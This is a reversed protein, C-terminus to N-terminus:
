DLGARIRSLSQPTVDLYSAIEKLSVNRFLEPHRKLLLRYQGKKDLWYYDTFFDVTESLIKEALRRTFGSIIVSEECLRGLRSRAIRWVVCATLAEVSVKSTGARTLAPFSLPTDGEGAIWLTVTKNERAFGSRVIGSEVFCIYRDREGEHQIIDGKAFRVREGNVLLADVTDGPLGYRTRLIEEITM